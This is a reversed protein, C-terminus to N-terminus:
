KNKVFCPNGFVTLYKATTKKGRWLKYPTKDTKPRLLVRNLLHVAIFTAETWFRTHLKSELLLTRAMEVVARNKREVVGNQQHTRAAAMQHHIGHKELYDEFAGNTFETGQDSRM